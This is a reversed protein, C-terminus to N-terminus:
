LPSGRFKRRLHGEMLSGIVELGAGGCFIKPMGVRSPIVATESEFCRCATSRRVCRRSTELDPYHRQDKTKCRAQNRYLRATSGSMLVQAELGV